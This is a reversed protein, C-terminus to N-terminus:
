VWPPRLLGLGLRGVHSEPKASPEETAKMEWRPSPTLLSKAIKKATEADMQPDAMQLRAALAQARTDIPYEPKEFTVQEDRASEQYKTKTAETIGSLSTERGQAKAGDGMPVTVDRQSIPTMEM